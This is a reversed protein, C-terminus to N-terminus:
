CRLLGSRAPPARAARSCREQAVTRSREALLHDACCLNWVLRDIDIRGPTFSADSEELLQLGM